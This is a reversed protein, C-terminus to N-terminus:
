KFVQGTDLREKLDQVIYKAADWDSLTPEKDYSTLVWDWMNQDTLFDIFSPHFEEPYFKIGYERINLLGSIFEGFDQNNYAEVCSAILNLITHKNEDTLEKFSDGKLALDNLIESCEKFLNMMNNM